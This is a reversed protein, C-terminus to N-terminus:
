SVGALRGTRHGSAPDEWPVVSSRGQGADSIVFRVLITRGNFMEQDYFEGRGNRFEGITPTGVAGSQSSAVNLSWQHSDPNYLRWSALELHGNPGDAEDSSEEIREHDGREGPTSEAESCATIV